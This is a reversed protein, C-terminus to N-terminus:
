LLILPFSTFYAKVERYISLPPGVLTRCNIMHVNYFASDAVDFAVRKISLVHYSHRLHRM